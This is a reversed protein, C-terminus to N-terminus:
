TRPTYPAPVARIEELCREWEARMEAPVEVMRRRNILEAVGLGSAAIDFGAKVIQLVLAKAARLPEGATTLNRVMSSALHRRGRLLKWMPITSRRYALLVEPLLAFRSTRYTRLLLDMDQSRIKTVDYPNDRFWGTEGMWVGQPFHFGLHRRQVIEEHTTGTQPYLGVARLNDDIILARASLLDVEPHEQLYQVQRAFRQPYCVDDADMRALYRGRALEIGQNARYGAGRTRRGRYIRIRPDCFSRAIESTRDTSGDDIFLLEWNDETQAVLSKLTIAVTAEANLASMVVSVLPTRARGTM